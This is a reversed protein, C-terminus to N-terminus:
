GPAAGRGHPRPASLCVTQGHTSCPPDMVTCATPTAAPIKGGCSLASARHTRPVAPLAARTRGRGTGAAHPRERHRPEARARRAARAPVPFEVPQVRARGQRCRRRSPEAAALLPPPLFSSPPPSPKRIGQRVRRACTLESSLAPLTGPMQM